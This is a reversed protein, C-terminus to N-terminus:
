PALRQWTPDSTSDWPAARIEGTAADIIVQRGPQGQADAPTGLITSDDPSWEFFACCEELVSISQDIEVGLSSGDAPVVVPRVEDYDSAYGHLMLLRTGDNSWDSGATWRALPPMDIVRDGTGDASVIHTRATIRQDSGPGGWTWYAVHSGDPSWNAGAVDFGPKPEVITRTAGTSVDVAYVGQGTDPINPFGVFMIEAGDPPRFSPEYAAMGVNIQRIGSGDAQAIAIGPFGRDTQAILVSRGDPSFQYQEWPEGLQSKTLEIREPTILRLGSGDARVVFLRTFPGDSRAFVIHTGDRSFRPGTDTEPSAVMATAAGTVPDATFIDGNRDFAVLGNRAPGFPAPVRQQAGAYFALAAALLAVLLALVALQRWPVRPTSVRTTVLEMPLWREPFTWAPRQRVGAIRQVIDDRYAPTGALYLDALLAPLDQEFRRPSTM